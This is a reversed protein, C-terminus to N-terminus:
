ERRGRLRSCRRRMGSASTSAPACSRCRTSVRGWLLCAAPDVVATEDDENSDTASAAAGGRGPAARRAPRDALKRVSRSTDEDPVVAEADVAEIPAGVAEIPGDADYEPEYMDLAAPQSEYYEETTAAIEEAIEGAIAVEEAYEARIERDGSFFEM